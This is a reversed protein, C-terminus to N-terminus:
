QKYCRKKKKTVNDHHTDFCSVIVGFFREDMLQQSLQTRVDVHSPFVTIHPHSHYWGIVMMPFNSKKSFEEAELAALHLSEPAIEVRDKRKDSRTLFSIHKVKGVTKESLYPNSSPVTEWHGILMGIIEE